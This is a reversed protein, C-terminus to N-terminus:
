KKKEEKKEKKWSIIVIIHPSMSTDGSVEKTILEKIYNGGRKPFMGTFGLICCLERSIEEDLMKRDEPTEAYYYYSIQIEPLAKEQFKIFSGEKAFIAKSFAELTTMRDLSINPTLPINFAFFEKGPIEQPLSKIKECSEMFSDILSQGLRFMENSIELGEEIDFFSLKLKNKPEEGFKKLNEYIGTFEQIERVKGQLLALDETLNLEEYETIVKIPSAMKLAEELGIHNDITNTNEM